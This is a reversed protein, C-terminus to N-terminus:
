RRYWVPEADDTPVTQRRRDAGAVEVPFTLGALRSCTREDLMQDWTSPAFNTALVIPLQQEYREDVLDAIQDQKWASDHQAGVDDLLLVDVSIVRKWARERADSDEFRQLERLLQRASRFLVRIDRDILRIALAALTHSKGVGAVGWLAPAPLLRQLREARPLTRDDDSLWAKIANMAPGNANTRQLPVGIFRAPIGALEILRERGASPDLHRTPVTADHRCEECRVVTLVSDSEDAIIRMTGPCPAAQPATMSTCVGFPEGEVREAATVHEPDIGWARAKAAWDMPVPGPLNHRRRSM